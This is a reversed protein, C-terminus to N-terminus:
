VDRGRYKWDSAVAIALIVFVIPDVILSGWGIFSVPYHGRCSNVFLWVWYVGEALFMLCVIIKAGFTM